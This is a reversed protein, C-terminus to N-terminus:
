AADPPTPRVVTPPTIDHRLPHGSPRPGSERRMRARTCTWCEQPAVRQEAVQRVFSPLLRRCDPNACHAFDADTM